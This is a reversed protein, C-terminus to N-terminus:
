PHWNNAIVYNYGSYCYAGTSCWNDSGMNGSSTELAAQIAYHKNDYGGSYRLCYQYSYPLNPSSTNGNWSPDSPMKTLYPTLWTGSVSTIASCYTSGAGSFMGPYYGYQAYYLELATAINQLDQKRRADRAKAMYQNISILVIGALVAIIAIVVILEIITFGGGTKNFKKSRRKQPQV